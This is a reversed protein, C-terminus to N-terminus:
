SHNPTDMYLLRRCCIIRPSHKCRYTYWYHISLLIWIIDSVLWHSHHVLNFQLIQFYIRAPEIRLWSQSLQNDQIQNRQSEPLRGSDQTHQRQCQLYSLGLSRIPPLSLSERPPRSRPSVAINDNRRCSHNHIHRNHLQINRDGQDHITCSDHQWQHGSYQWHNRSIM